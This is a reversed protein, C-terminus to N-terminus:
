GWGILPCSCPTWKRARVYDKARKPRLSPLKPKPVKRQTNSPSPPKVANQPHLAFAWLQQSQLLSACRRGERCARRGHLSPFQRRTHTHTHKFAFGYACIAVMPHYHTLLTYPRKRHNNQNTCAPPPFWCHCDIAGQDPFLPICPPVESLRYNGMSNSKLRGRAAPHCLRAPHSGYNTAAM